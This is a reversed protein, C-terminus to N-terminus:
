EPCASCFQYSGSDLSVQSRKVILSTLVRTFYGAMVCNLPPQADVLSYLRDLPEDGELTANIIGDM